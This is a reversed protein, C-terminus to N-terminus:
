KLQNYLLDCIERVAGHGGRKKTKYMVHPKIEDYADFVAVPFGVIKLAPIDNIDNGVFMTNELKIGLEKCLIKVSKSKDKINQFVPIKLKKARVSVVINPETSIIYTPIKLAKLKSIGLGDSRHCKVSEIGDQSIYVSNDTFVGDFDFIVLKVKQLNM